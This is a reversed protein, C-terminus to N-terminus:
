MVSRPMRELASNLTMGAKLLWGLERTFVSIESFSAPGGGLRFMAGASIGLDADKVEIPHLGQEGLRGLVMSRDRGEIEGTVREGTDRIASYRFKPM